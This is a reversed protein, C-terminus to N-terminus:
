VDRGGRKFHAVAIKRLSKQENQPLSDFDVDGVIPSDSDLNPEIEVEGDEASYRLTVPICIETKTQHYTKM